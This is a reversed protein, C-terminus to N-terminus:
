QGGFFLLDEDDALSVAPGRRVIMLLNKNHQPAAFTEFYETSVGWSLVVVLLVALM